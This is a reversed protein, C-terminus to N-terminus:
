KFTKINYDLGINPSYDYYCIYQDEIKKIYENNYKLKNRPINLKLSQAKLFEKNAILDNYEEILSAPIVSISDDGIMDEINNANYNGVRLSNLIKALTEKYKNYEDMDIRTYVKDLYYGVKDELIIGNDIHIIKDIVKYTNDIIDDKYICKNYNNYINIECLGKEGKRNIRGFRQLLADYPAIETYMVDYSIDLSVEIAQTGILLQNTKLGQEAIERDRTNFRGHILKCQYEKSFKEYLQQSASVNNVCLIVQKGNNLDTKIKDIDDFITKNHLKIKHRIILDEKGAKIINDIDLRDKILEQLVTPISASMVCIRCNLKYKLFRLLELIYSLTKIDFCHIEDVIVISNRMQALLMEFRKCSFMAKALQFITCINVQKTSYKLLKYKDKNFSEDLKSMFYEAKNHLMCTSINKSEFDKYLSNISATFPLIYYIRKSKSKNQVNDSWYMSTATKGLGTMATILVDEKCQMAQRQISNKNAFNFSKNADYGKDISINGASALHDCYNLYGKLLINDLKKVEKNRPKNIEKIFDSIDELKLNLKNSVELLEEKYKNNDILEISKNLEKHHTLIALKEAVNLGEVSAGIWEHRIFNAREGNLIRQMSDSCKGIDHYEICKNLSNKIENEIDYIDIIQNLIKILELNHDRISTKDIKAMYKSLM